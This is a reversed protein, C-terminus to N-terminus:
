DIKNCRNTVDASGNLSYDTGEASEDEELVVQNM